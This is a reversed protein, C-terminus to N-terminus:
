ALAQRETPFKDMYRLLIAAIQARSANAEPAIKGNGVGSVLSNYVAWWMADKAWSAINGSDSFGSEYVGSVLAEGGTESGAYRFLIAVAQQRTINANPGFTTESIGNVFGNEYAWNLATEYWDGGATDTFAAKEKAEPKGAMRWLMLVFQARTVPEDPRFTGDSFGAVLGLEAAREVSAFAWHRSNVDRFSGTKEDEQPAEPTQPPIVSPQTRDESVLKPLDYTFTIQAGDANAMTTQSISLKADDAAKVTFTFVALEGDKKVTDTSAAALVAGVGDRTGHTNTASLMGSTVAGNRVATCELVADDYGLKVQAASLGPNGSVSVTVTFSEGVAPLADPATVVVSTGAAFAAPLLSVLLAFIVCFIGIRRVRMTDEM